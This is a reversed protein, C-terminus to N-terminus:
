SEFDIKEVTEILLRLQQLTAQTQTQSKEDTEILNKLRNKYAESISQM